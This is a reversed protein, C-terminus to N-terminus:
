KPGLYHRHRAELGDGLGDRGPRWLGVFDRRTGKPAGPLIPSCVTVMVNCKKKPVARGGGTGPPLWDGAVSIM